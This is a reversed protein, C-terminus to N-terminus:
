ARSANKPSRKWRNHLWLWEEPHKRIFQELIFHYRKVLELIDEKHCTLDSTKVEIIKLQYHDDKTRRPVEVFLPVGSKLALFGPGLFVSTKRGLFDIYHSVKRQSQDALIVVIEGRKLANIGARLANNAEIVKNGHMTRLHNLYIDLYKNKIPKVIFNMPKLMLGTCLGITEWSGFHGSVVVAGQKNKLIPQFGEDVHMSVLEQADKKNKILPIRLLEIINLAQNQYVKRAINDIDARTKEPFSCTLNELVLDRRIKLCSYVFIGLMRGLSM